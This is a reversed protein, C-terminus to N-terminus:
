GLGVVDRQIDNRAFLKQTCSFQRYEQPYEEPSNAGGDPKSDRRSTTPTAGGEGGDAGDTEEAPRDDGGEAASM